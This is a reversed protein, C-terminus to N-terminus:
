PMWDIALRPSVPSCLVLTEAARTIGVYFQRIVPDRLTDWEHRGPLSLDPFLIVCDSEGGKVSHITGITVKPRERLAAGGHRRVITAPYELKRRKDALASTLLWDLDLDYAHGFVEESAFRELLSDVAMPEPNRILKEIAAKQGRKLVGDVKVLDLWESLDGATWVRHMDGWTDPDPRLFSLLRRATSVGRGGSLPNWDGRTVRYPNHFPIGERVLMARVEALMYACSTLLMVTKGAALQKEIGPLLKEPDRWTATSTKVAGADGERPEYAKPERRGLRSVWHEALTHVARPVRYSRRLVRKQDAGVPPDLFAEPTAGTFSYICQDDDGACIFTDMARGWKRVLSLELPTFDQVEDFFGVRPNGPAHDTNELCWEILDTFDVYNRESKWEEWMASFRRVTDTWLAPPTFQARHRQWVAMIADGPSENPVEHGAEDLRNATSKGDTMHFEFPAYENWDGLEGEAIKPRNMRRYCLAHLTGINKAPVLEGVRGALEKAATRTFSALVLESPEYKDLAAVVQSRVYATKGTGPPGFVRIERTHHEDM